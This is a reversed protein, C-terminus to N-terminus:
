KKKKKKKKKKSKSSKEKLSKSKFNLEEEPNRNDAISLEGLERGLEVVSEVLDGDEFEGEEVVVEIVETETM